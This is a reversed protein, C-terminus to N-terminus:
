LLTRRILPYGTFNVVQLYSKKGGAIAQLNVLNLYITKFFVCTTIWDSERLSIFSYVPYPLTSFYVCSKEKHTVCRPFLVNFVTFNNSDFM